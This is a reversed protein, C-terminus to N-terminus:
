ELPELIEGEITDLPESVNEEPILIAALVYVGVGVGLSGISFLVWLLRVISSDLNLTRALGGCVGLLMRDERSRRLPLHQHLSQLCSQIAARTPRKEKLTQRVGELEGSRSLLLWGLFILVGPWFLVSMLRRFGDWLSPLIGTNALLWMFGLLILFLAVPRLQQQNVVAQQQRGTAATGVPLLLWLIIYVFIAAGATSFAAILWVLRILVPDINFYEGLGGCVGALRRDHPHRYLPPHSNRTSTSM